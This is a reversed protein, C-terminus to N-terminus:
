KQRNPHIGFVHVRSPQQVVHQLVIVGVQGIGLFGEVGEDRLQNGLEIGLNGDVLIFGGKGERKRGKM